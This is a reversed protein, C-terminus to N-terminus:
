AKNLLNFCILGMGWIVTALVRATSKLLLESIGTRVAVNKSQNFKNRNTGLSIRFTIKGKQSEYPLLFFIGFREGQGSGGFFGGTCFWVLELYVLCNLKSKTELNWNEILTVYFVM